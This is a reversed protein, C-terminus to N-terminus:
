FLRVAKIRCGTSVATGRAATANKGLIQIDASLSATYIAVLKVEGIGGAQLYSISEDTDSIDAPLDGDYLKFQYNDNATGGNTVRISAIILYTGESPLSLVPDTGGFDLAAYSTTFSYDSGSCVVTSARNHVRNNQGAGEGIASARYKLEGDESFVAVANTADAAPATGNAIYIGKALSDIFATEWDNGVSLNNGISANRAISASISANGIRFQNKDTTEAFAGAATSNTHLEGVVTNYGLGSGYDAYVEGNLSMSFLGSAAPNIGIAVSNTGSAVGIDSSIALSYYGPAQGGGFQQSGANTGPSSFANGYNIGNTLKPSSLIPTVLVGNTLRALNGSISTANTIHANTITVASLLGNTASLYSNTILIGSMAGNTAYLTMNTGSGGVIAPATLTKGSITQTNTKGVLDVALPWNQNIANTAKSLDTVLSTMENTAQTTASQPTAINVRDILPNTSVAITAYTGAPISLTFVQGIRGEFSVTNSTQSIRMPGTPANTSFYRTLNTTTAGIDAGIQLHATLTPTSKWTKTGTSSSLSLTEDVAPLNTFTMVATIREAGYSRGAIIILLFIILLLFPRLFKLRKM